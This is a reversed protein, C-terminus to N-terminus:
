ESRVVIKPLILKGILKSIDPLSQLEDNTIPMEPLRDKSIPFSYADKRIDVIIPTTKQIPNLISNSLFTVKIIGHAM